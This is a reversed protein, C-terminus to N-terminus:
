LTGERSRGTYEAHSLVDRVYIRGLDYRIDVILRYKNGGIDFVTPWNGLFDAGPFDARVQHPSAYRKTEMIALWARLPREADAHRMGFEGLQKASIVHM